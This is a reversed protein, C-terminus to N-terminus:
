LHLKVSFTSMLKFSAETSERFYHSSSIFLSNFLHLSLHLSSFTKKETRVYTLGFRTNDSIGKQIAMKFNCFIYFDVSFDNNFHGYSGLFHLCLSLLHKLRNESIILHFSLFDSSSLSSSIFFFTKQGFM